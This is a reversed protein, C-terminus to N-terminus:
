CRAFAADICRRPCPREGLGPGIAARRVTPEPDRLLPVAKALLEKEKRMSERLLLKVAALRTGYAPDGVGREVMERCADVWQGPQVCELLEAALLLSAGRLADKKEADLM